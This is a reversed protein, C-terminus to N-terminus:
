SHFIFSFLKNESSDNKGKLRHPLLVGNEYFSVEDVLSSPSDKQNSDSFRAGVEM